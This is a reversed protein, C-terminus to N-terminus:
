EYTNRQLNVVEILKNKLQQEPLKRFGQLMLKIDDVFAAGFQLITLFILQPVLMIGIIISAAVFQAIILFILHKENDTDFGINRFHLFRCIIHIIYLSQIYASIFIHNM